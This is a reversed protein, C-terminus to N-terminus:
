DFKVWVKEAYCAFVLLPPIVRGRKTFASYFFVGTINKLIVTVNGNHGKEIFSGGSLNTIDIIYREFTTGTASINLEGCISGHWPKFFGTFISALNVNQFRGRVYVFRNEYYREIEATEKSASIPAFCLTFFGIIVFMGVIKHIM